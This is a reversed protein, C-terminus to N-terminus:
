DILGLRQLDGEQWGADAIMARLTGVPFSDNLAYYAVGVRRGDYHRFIRHSRRVRQLSGDAHWAGRGDGSKDPEIVVKFISSKL